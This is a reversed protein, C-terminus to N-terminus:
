SYLNLIIGICVEEAEARRQNEIAEREAMIKQTKENQPLIEAFVM